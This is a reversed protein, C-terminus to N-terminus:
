DREEGRGLYLCAASALAFYAHRNLLEAIATWDSPAAVNEHRAGAQELVVALAVTRSAAECHLM